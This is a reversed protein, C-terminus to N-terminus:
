GERTWHLNAKRGSIHSSCSCEDIPQSAHHRDRGDFAQAPGFKDAQHASSGCLDFDAIRRKAAFSIVAEPASADNPRSSHIVAEWGFKGIPGLPVPEITHRINAPDRERGNRLSGADLRTV